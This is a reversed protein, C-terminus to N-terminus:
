KKNEKRLNERINNSIFFAEAPNGLLYCTFSVFIVNRIITLALRLSKFDLRFLTIILGFLLFPAYFIILGFGTIIMIWIIWCVTANFNSNNTIFGESEDKWYNKKNITWTIKIFEWILPFVIYIVFVLIFLRIVIFILCWTYNICCFRTRFGLNRYFM